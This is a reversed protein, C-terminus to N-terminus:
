GALCANPLSEQSTGTGKCNGETDKPNGTESTKPAKAELIQLTEEGHEQLAQRICEGESEAKVEPLGPIQLTFEQNEESFFSEIQLTKTEVEHGAWTLTDKIASLVESKEGEDEYFFATTTPEKKVHEPSLENRAPSPVIWFNSHLCLCYLKIKM